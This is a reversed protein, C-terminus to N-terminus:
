LVRAAEELRNERVLRAIKQFKHPSRNICLKPLGKMFPGVRGLFDLFAADDYVNRARVLLGEMNHCINIIFEQKLTPPDLDMEEVAEMCKMYNHLADEVKESTALRLFNGQAYYYVVDKTFSFHNCRTWYRFSFYVDEANRRDTPFRIDNDLLFRREMLKGTIFQDRAAAPFRALPMRVVEERFITSLHEYQMWKHEVVNFNRRAGFVVNSGTAEALKVLRELARYDLFDDADLFIVYKGTANELARNRSAARGLNKPNTIVRVRPDVKAFRQLIRPTDDTSGDDVAVLELDDLRQMLVSSIARGLDQEGDKVILLVSVLPTM